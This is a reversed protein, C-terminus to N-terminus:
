WPWWWFRKQVQPGRFRPIKAARKPELPLPIQEPPVAEFWEGAKGCGFFDGSRLQEPTSRYLTEGTVLSTTTNKPNKCKDPEPPRPLGNRSFVMVPIYHACDKCFKM